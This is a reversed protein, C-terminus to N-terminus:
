EFEDEEEAHPTVVIRREHGGEQYFVAIRTGYRVIRSAGAALLLADIETQSAGFGIPDILLERIAKALVLTKRM